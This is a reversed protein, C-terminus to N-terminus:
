IEGGLAFAVGRSETSIMVGARPPTAKEVSAIIALLIVALKLM